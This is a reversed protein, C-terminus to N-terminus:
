PQPESEPPQVPTVRKQVPTVTVPPGERRPGRIIRGGEISLLGRDFPNGWATPDSYGRAIIALQTFTQSRVIIRFQIPLKALRRTIFNRSAGAGQRVGDFNFSTIIEGALAGDLAVSMQRYDLSRLASFAYNGMAGLNEYSLEGLYSVNGGGERSLLVGGEIRGNGAADFVIPVSGDFIGTASINGLEMQAVFKAADLGTIEFVYRREEAAGLEMTLPRMVLTGGMFPFRADELTLRTADALEFQVRGGLAEIGPNIAAITLMQDPATTLSLLDTFTVAGALGRVPGFAAAFDLGQTTFTGGSTVVGDRWDVRGTGIITGKALAIVGKALPTLDDPQLGKDFVLAPVTLRANGAATGLDHEVEVALVQRGSAPHDIRADAAIRNGELTLRGARGAMPVFRAPGGDAPRDSLTFAADALTIAGDAYAWRGAIADLDLPVAALRATGGAVEGGPTGSLSGTLSAAALRVESDGTGIRAALNAITFPQPYRLMVSGAALTAPSEGLKGALNLAGTRAALRLSGRWALIPAGGEPCLTISQSGLALGSLKLSAFRLPTCRTGVALGSAPAYRGEIPVTLDSVAGGPLPGSATVLGAFSLSGDTASEVALRPVALRSSGAAYDAMAFRATWGGGQRQEIRGNLSPLGEGGALLNGGLGSVGKAGIRAGARSLALVRTGSRAALSAEPLTLTAEGGKHRVVAETRLTGGDLARALGMRVKGLLPALLTGELSRQAEALSAALGPAPTLGTGELQGEWQGSAGDAAGRWSGEAALRALRGQPSAIGTLALDHGVAIRGQSWDVRATGGLGAATVDAMGAGGADVRFDARAAALDPALRARTGIDARALRAGGCALGALRLPGDLTPAGGKTTLEGYLTARETRCGATGLGPASAALTGAFGDDLRGSGELSVGIRGFDSAVLARADSLTVAIAPLAAPEKSGTFVLPDLAGLSFRGGRQTAFLRVGKLSVRRVAPGSWGFGMDIVMRRVTLDPRAPDGVVLNDVVQRDPSLSVIRYTAPVGRAALYDDIVDRAIRERSLWAGGGAVLVAAALGLGIRRPWRRRRPADLGDGDPAEVTEAQAM